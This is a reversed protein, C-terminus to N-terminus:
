WLNIGILEVKLHRRESTKKHSFRQTTQRSHLDRLTWRTKKPPSTNHQKKTNNKKKGLLLFKHKYRRPHVSCQIATKDPYNHRCLWHQQAHLSGVYDQKPKYPNKELRNISCFVLISSLYVDHTVPRSKFHFCFSGVSIIKKGSKFATGLHTLYPSTEKRKWVALWSM